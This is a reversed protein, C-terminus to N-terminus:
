KKGGYFPHLFCAISLYLFLGIIVFPIIHFNGILSALDLIAFIISIIVAWKQGKFIGRTIFIQLIFVGILFLSMILMSGGLLMAMSSNINSMFGLASGGIAMLLMIPLLIALLIISIIYLIGLVTGQWPRSVKESKSASVTKIVPKTAKKAKTM